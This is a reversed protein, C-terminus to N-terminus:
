MIEVKEIEKQWSAVQHRSAEQGFVLPLPKTRADLLIGLTGGNVSIKRIEKSSIPFTLGLDIRQGAPAPILSIEGSGLEVEQVQSYGWDLSVKGAGGLSIFTGLPEFWSGLNAAELQKYRSLLAGFSPLFFERDFSVEAVDGSELIDSILIAVRTLSPAGSLVGGSAAILVKNEKVRGNFKESLYTRAYAEEIELEKINKPLIHSRFRRNGFFNELTIDNISFTLYKGVDETSFHTSLNGAGADLMALDSGAERLFNSLPEKVDVEKVFEAGVNKALKEVGELNSVFIKPEQSSPLKSLLLNTAISLDGLSTPLRYSKEVSLLNQEDLNALFLKTWSSGIDVTIFKQQM